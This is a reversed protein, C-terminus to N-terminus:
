LWFLGTLTSQCLVRICIATALGIDIPWVSLCASSRFPLCLISLDVFQHSHCRCRFFTACLAVFLPLVLAPAIVAAAAWQDSSRHLRYCRRLGSFAGWYKALAIRRDFKLQLHKRHWELSTILGPLQNCPRQCQHLQAILLRIFLHKEFKQIASFNLSLMIRSMGDTSRCVITVCGRCLLIHLLQRHYATDAWM